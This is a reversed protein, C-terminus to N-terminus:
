TTEFKHSVALDWAKQGLMFGCIWLTQQVCYPLTREKAGKKAKIKSHSIMISFPTNETTAEVLSKNRQM